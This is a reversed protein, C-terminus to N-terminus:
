NKDLYKKPTYKKAKEKADFYIETMARFFADKDEDSLDGGAMLVGAENLIAEAQAKGRNGYRATAQELFNDQEQAAILEDESLFYDTPVDLAKALAIITAANKPKRQNSEYLTITQRSIGIEKSLDLQSIKAAKRAAKIKDGLQM